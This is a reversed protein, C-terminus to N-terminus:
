TKFKFMATFHGLGTKIISVCRTQAVSHHTFARPKEMLDLFGRKKLIKTPCMDMQPAVSLGTKSKQHHRMQTEFGSHARSISSPLPMCERLNVEPAVGRGTYIALIAALWKGWMHTEASPPHRIQVVFVNIWLMDLFLTIKLSGIGIDFWPEEYSPAGVRWSPSALMCIKWFFQMFNLFNQDTAPHTNLM